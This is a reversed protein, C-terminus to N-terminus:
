NSRMSEHWLNTLEIKLDNLARKKGKFKACSFKIEYQRVRGLQFHTGADYKHSSFFFTNMGLISYHEKNETNVTPQPFYINSLKQLVGNFYIM